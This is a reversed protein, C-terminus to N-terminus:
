VSFITVASTSAQLGLFCLSLHILVPIKDTGLLKLLLYSAQHHNVQLQSAVM